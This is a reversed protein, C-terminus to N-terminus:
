CWQNSIQIPVKSIVFRYKGSATRPIHDVLQVDIRIENGLRRHLADLLMREDESSYGQRPVIKLLISNVDEQIIQAEKLYVTDRFCPSLRGVHRGDPTVVFDDVRGTIESLIPTNLGCACEGGAAIGTDGTRYRILPLAKEVLSTCVLEGVEGVAAPSGDPSQVEVICVETVVHFHGERCQLIHAVLENNGYRSYAKCGFAQEIVKRQYDHLTESSTYV